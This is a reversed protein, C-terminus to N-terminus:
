QKPFPLPDKKETNEQPPTIRKYSSKVLGLGNVSPLPEYASHAKVDQGYLMFLSRKM